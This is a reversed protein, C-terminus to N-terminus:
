RRSFTWDVLELCVSIVQRNLSIANFSSLEDWPMESSQKPPSARLTMVRSGVQIFNEWRIFFKFFWDNLYNLVIFVNQTRLLCYTNLVEIDLGNCTADGSQSLKYEAGESTEDTFLCSCISNLFSWFLFFHNQIEIKSCMHAM